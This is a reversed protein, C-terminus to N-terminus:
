SACLLERLFTWCASAESPAWQFWALNRLFRDRVAPLLPQPPADVPWTSASVAKAAGDQCITPIGMRIADVAVNSHYTIVASLGALAQDIPARSAAVTGRPIALGPVKHRYLVPRGTAQARAIQEAEWRAVVAEGYQVRAKRGIGAVLVPGAPDWVDAIPVADAALRSASWERAFIWQPPHAGDISVRLKRDRHWYAADWALVRRGTELSQRMPVVRDPAGPGWLMLWDTDGRYTSSSVLSVQAAPAAAALQRFLDATRPLEPTFRLLEVTLAVAIM